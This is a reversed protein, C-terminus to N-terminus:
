PLSRPWLRYPRFLDRGVALKKQSSQFNFALIFSGLCFQSKLRLWPFPTVWEAACGDIGAGSFCLRLAACPNAVAGNDAALIEGPLLEACLRMSFPMWQIGWHYLCRSFTELFLLIPTAKRCTSAHAWPISRAGTTCTPWHCTWSRQAPTRLTCRLARTSGHISRCMACPIWETNLHKQYELRLGTHLGPHHKLIHDNLGQPGFFSIGCDACHKSMVEMLPEDSKLRTYFGHHLYWAALRVWDDKLHLQPPIQALVLADERILWVFTINQLEERLDDGDWLAVRGDDCIYWGDTAMVAARLHGSHVNGSHLIVSIPVYERFHLCMGTEENWFPILVTQSLEVQCDAKCVAGSANRFCRDVHLGILDSSAHFCTRMGSHEHWTDVLSQLQCAKKEPAEFTLSPPMGRGGVDYMLVKGDSLLRRSWTTDLCVPNCWTLMANTFEHADEQRGFHGWTGQLGEFGPTELAFSGYQGETLFSQIAREGMEFDSWDAKDRQVMGWTFAILNANVYCIAGDNQLRLTLIAQSAEGCKIPRAFTSCPNRSPSQIPVPPTEVPQLSADLDRLSESSAATGLNQQIQDDGPDALPLDSRSQSEYDAEAIGQVELDSRCETGARAIRSDLKEHAGYSNPKEGDPHSGKESHLVPPLELSRGSHDCSRQDPGEVDRGPAQGDDGEGIKLGTGSDPQPVSLHSTGDPDEAATSTGELHQYGLDTSSTHRKPRVAFFHHIPGAHGTSPATVRAELHAPDISEVSGTAKRSTRVMARSGKKEQTAAPGVHQGLKGSVRGDPGGRDHPLERSGHSTLFACLNLAVPCFPPLDPAQLCAQCCDMFPSQALPLLDLTDTLLTEHRLLHDRLSHIGCVTQCLACKETLDARLQENEWLAHFDAQVFKPRPPFHKMGMYHLILLQHHVPCLHDPSIRKATCHCKEKGAILGLALPYTRSAEELVHAHDNTLHPLIAGSRQLQQGCLVCRSCLLQIQEDDNLIEAPPLDCAQKLLKLWTCPVHSGVPRDAQFHKCGGDEIHRRLICMTKSDTGCHSCRPVGDMADRAPEFDAVVPRAKPETQRTRKLPSTLQPSDKPASHTFEFTSLDAEQLAKVIALQRVVPCAHNRKGEHGCACPNSVLQAAINAVYPQATDWAHSHERHLHDALGKKSTYQLGCLTCSQRVQHLLMSNGLLSTWNDAAAMARLTKNDALSDQLPRTAVFHHCFNRFIHKQLGARTAFKNCCHACQPQGALADRLPVYVNLSLAVSHVSRLHKTLQSQYQTTFSCYPCLQMEVFTPRDVLAFVQMVLAHHAHLDFSQMFDDPALGSWRACLREHQVIWTEQLQLTPLPLQVRVFLDATSEHTIFCPSHAIRRIDAAFQRHLRLLGPNTLGTAQLGHLCATRVCTQWLNLRMSLPFDHRKLLWPRLRLFAARGIQLRYSVTYDEFRYYSIKIGLYVHQSVLPLLTPPGNTRPVVICLQGAQMKLHKKRVMQTHRGSLRLLVVSKTLNVTMGLADLVDLVIGIQSLANEFDFTSHLIWRALLDDAYTLLHKQVWAFQQADPIASDLRHMLVVLFITWELPSAKCGQRVGQSTLVTCDIKRHQFHYAAQHLWKLFMQSLKGDVGLLDFGVALLHRPLRDFAQSMDLSLMLGGRLGTASGPSPKWYSYASSECLTRVTRCHQCVYMLAELTGRGPVFAFIPLTQMTPIVDTKLAQTLLGLVTRGISDTLAIPRIDKPSRVLRKALLVLWADRWAQPVTPEKTGCWEHQLAPWLWDALPESLARLLLNPLTKPGVAKHVPASGFAHALDDRSFPLGVLPGNDPPHIESTSQFVSAFHQEFQACEEIAFLAEGKSGRLRIARHPQKPTLRRIIEFVVRTDHRLAAHHAATAADQLRKVKAQKCSTSLRRKLQQIRTSHFWARFLDPLSCTSTRRVISYSHWLQAVISRHKPLAAKAPQSIKHLVQSCTVLTEAIMSPLQQVDTPSNRFPDELVLQLEPWAPHQPTKWVEYLLKQHPKSLSAAHSSKHYWCRWNLPLSCVVPVHDRITRWSAIPFYRLAHGRRCYADLQAKPLLVHDISSSGQPGHYTPYADHGRVSGLHYKKLLELFEYQDPPTSSKTHSDIPCNFDGALVTLNRRALTHLLRDLREWLQGRSVMPKSRTLTQNEPHQYVNVLDLSNHGLKCRVHLLRGPEIVAYAIDDFSCLRNSICTLLGCHVHKTGEDAGSQIFSYGHSKWTREGKWKTGQVLVVDLQQSQMWIVLENYIESTLGGANWTMLSARRGKALSPAHCAKPRPMMPAPADLPGGLDRLSLLQGRYFTWGHQMARKRARLLSRKVAQMPRTTGYSAEQGLGHQKPTHNSLSPQFVVGGGFAMACEPGGGRSRCNVFSFSGLTEFRSRLLQSQCAPTGSNPGAPVSRLSSRWWSLPLLLSWLLLLILPARWHAVAWSFSTQM